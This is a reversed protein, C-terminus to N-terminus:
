VIWDFSGAVVAKLRDVEENAPLGSLVKVNATGFWFTNVKYLQRTHSLGAM